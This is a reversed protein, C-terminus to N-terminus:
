FCYHDGFCEINKFFVMYCADSFKGFFSEFFTKQEKESDFPFTGEELIKNTVSYVKYNVM